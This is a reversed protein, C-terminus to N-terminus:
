NDAENIEDLNYANSTENRIRNLGSAELDNELDEDDAYSQEEIINQKSNSSRTSQMPIAAISSYEITSVTSRISDIMKQERIAVLESNPPKHIRMRKPLKQRERREQKQLQQYRRYIDRFFYEASVESSNAM